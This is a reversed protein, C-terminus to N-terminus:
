DTAFPMHKARLEAAIRGAEHVDRIHAIRYRVGNVMIGAEWTRDRASYSVGRYGSQNRKSHKVRNQGNEAQTAIRLNSRRNDLLDGNIHDGRRPDGHELGLVVRHLRLNKSARGSVIYGNGGICWPMHGIREFDAPDVKAYARIQRDKGRLPILRYPYSYSTDLM